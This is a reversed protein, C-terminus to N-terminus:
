KGFLDCDYCRCNNPTDYIYEVAVGFTPWQKINVSKQCEEKCVQKVEEDDPSPNALSANVLKEALGPYWASVGKELISTPDTYNTCATFNLFQSTGTFPQSEPLKIGCLEALDPRNRLDPSASLQYDCYLKKTTPNNLNPNCSYGDFLDTIKKYEICYESNPDKGAEICWTRLTYCSTEDGVLGCQCFDFSLRLDLQLGKASESLKGGLESIPNTTTNVQSSTEQRSTSSTCGAIVIVSVLM